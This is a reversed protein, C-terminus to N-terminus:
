FLRSDKVLEAASRATMLLLPLDKRQRDTLGPRLFLFPEIRFAYAPVALFPLHDLDYQFMVLLREDQFIWARRQSGSCLIVYQQQEMRVVLGADRLSPDYSAQSLVPIDSRDDRTAKRIMSRFPLQVAPDTYLTASLTDGPRTFIRVPSKKELRLRPYRGAAPEPLAPFVFPAMASSAPDGSERYTPIVYLESRYREGPIFVNLTFVITCPGDGDTTLLQWSCHRVKSAPNVAPVLFGQWVMRVQRDFPPGMWYIFEDPYKKEM